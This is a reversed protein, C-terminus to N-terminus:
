GEMSQNVLQDEMEQCINSKITNSWWLFRFFCSVRKGMHFGWFLILLMHLELLDLGLVELLLQLEPDLQLRIPRGQWSHLLQQDQRHYQGQIIILKLSRCPLLITLLHQMNNSTNITTLFRICHLITYCWNYGHSHYYFLKFSITDFIWRDMSGDM